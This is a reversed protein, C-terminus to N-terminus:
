LSLLNIILKNSLSLLAFLAIFVAFLVAHFTRLVFSLRLESFLLLWCDFCCFAACLDRSHFHLQPLFFVVRNQSPQPAALGAQELHPAACVPAFNQPSQPV